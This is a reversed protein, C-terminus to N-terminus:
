TFKLHNLIYNEIAILILTQYGKNQSLGNM